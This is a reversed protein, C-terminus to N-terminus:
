AILGVKRLRERIESRVKNREVLKLEAGTSAYPYDEDEGLCEAILSQLQQIIAPDANRYMILGDASENIKVRFIDQLTKM